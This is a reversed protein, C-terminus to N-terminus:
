VQSVLEGDEEEFDYRMTLNGNQFKTTFLRNM